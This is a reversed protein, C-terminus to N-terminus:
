LLDGNYTLSFTIILKQPNEPDEKKTTILPGFQTKKQWRRISNHRWKEKKVAQILRAGMKSNCRVVVPESSSAIKNWLETYKRTM